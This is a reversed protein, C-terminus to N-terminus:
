AAGPVTLPPNVTGSRGTYTRVHVATGDSEVVVQGDRDTRYVEAGIASLRDLVAPAPHGFSNGRGCSIIAAQPRWADLLRASSSTRSGHHAVKLIRIRAPSLLPVLDSEIDAGIDGTLLIAVEGYSIELVLSDDNRVRRREWEPTLPNLIRVHASGWRMTAGRVPRLTDITRRRAAALLRREGADGSVPSGLWLFRPSFDDLVALAGGAHDPDGHTIVMRDLRAVGQARLAPALVREGVDFTGTRGVLGGADVLVPGAGPPEVLVAEGQGVDFVTVRLRDRPTVTPPLLRAMPVVIVAGAVTVVVIGAGRHWGRGAIAAVLGVFYAGIVWLPPPPVRWSLWPMVDVLRATEIIVGAAHHALWAAPTAVVPVSAGLVLVMGAVQVVTTAPVALVNLVLGAVTIRSFGVAAVPVLAIEVALSALLSARVWALARSGAAPVVRRASVVLAITAGFTLAFGLQGVDLPTAISLVGAAVALAHGVPTRQDLARAALYCAAMTTARWVSPGATIVGAFLTLTVLTVATAPRGRVGGAALGLMVVMVLIAVNGGSIAVVHYTGAAQLRRRVDDSLGTRDGILVATVIATTARGEPLRMDTTRRVTGRIGARIDAAREALWTGRARVDVLLGSKITAFLTTGALALGEEVDPNGANLYQAPRRFTMPSEIVRGARWASLRRWARDGGVSAVVSGRAPTWRGDLLLARVQLRLSVVGNVSAADERLLARVLMPDHDGAPGPTGIRFGGVREDLVLRLSSAIAEQRTRVGIIATSAALGAAVAIVVIWPRRYRWGLAATGAAALPLWTPPSVPLAGSRAVLAGALLLLGPLVGLSRVRFAAALAM